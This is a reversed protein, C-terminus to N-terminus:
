QAGQTDILLLSLLAEDPTIKSRAPSEGVPKAAEPEESSAALAPNNQSHTLGADAPSLPTVATYQNVGLPVISVEHVKVKTFVLTDETEYYELADFMFSMQGVRGQEILRATYAARPNNETDLDMTVKLGHSDAEQAVTMGLNFFPDHTGHEWYVPWPADEALTQTFAERKLVHGYTDVVDFVSAYGVYLQRQEEAPGTDTPTITVPFSKTFRKPTLSKTKMETEEGPTYEYWRRIAARTEEPDPRDAARKLCEEIGPDIIQVNVGDAKLRDLYSQSLRTHIVFADVDLGEFIRGTAARRAAHTVARIDDPHDHSSKSGLALALTDFDVVVDGPRSNEKVWTSKGACPPGLVFTIM